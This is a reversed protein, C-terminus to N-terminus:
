GVMVEAEGDLVIAATQNQCVTKLRLRNKESLITLIELAVKVRDGLYVPKKFNLTQSLYVTGQGPYQTGLVNSILGAILMGHAIRSKFRTGKAYSEDLHIPNRDGTAEAFLKVMEETIEFECAYTDGVSVTTMDFNMKQKM